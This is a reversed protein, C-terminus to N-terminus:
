DAVSAGLLLTVLLGQLQLGGSECRIEGKGGRLREGIVTTRVARLTSALGFECYVRDM